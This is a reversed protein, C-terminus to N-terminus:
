PKLTIKFLAQGEADDTEVKKTVLLRSMTTRYPIGELILIFKRVMSESGKFVCDIVLEAPKGGAAAVVSLGKTEFSVGVAAAAQELEAIFSVTDKETIFFTALETRDSQTSETQKIVNTYSMEKAAQEAVSVQAMGLATGQNHIVYFGYGLLSGLSVFYLLAFLFTTKAQKSM